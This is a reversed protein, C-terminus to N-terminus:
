GHLEGGRAVMAWYIREARDYARMFIQAVIRGLVDMEKTRSSRGGRSQAALRMRRFETHLLFSYRYMMALTDLLVGPVRFWRLADTIQAFPTTLVLSMLWIIDCYARLAVLGGQALGDRHLVCGGLTALPVRGFGLSFGFLVLLTPWLPILLFSLWQRRQPRAWIALSAGALLVLASLLPQALGTNLLVALAVAGLKWRPDWAYPGDLPAHALHREAAFVHDLRRTHAM